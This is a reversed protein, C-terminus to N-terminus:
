RSWSRTSLDPQDGTPSRRHCPKVRTGPLYTAKAAGGSVTKPMNGADGGDQRTRKSRVYMHRSPKGRPFTTVGPPKPLATKSRVKGCARHMKLYTPNGAQKRLERLGAAFEVPSAEPDLSRESRPM